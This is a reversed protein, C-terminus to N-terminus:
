KCQRVQQLETKTTENQLVTGINDGKSFFPYYSGIRLQIGVPMKIFLHTSFYTNELFVPLYSNDLIMWFKDYAFYTM